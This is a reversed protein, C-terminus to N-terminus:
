LAVVEKGLRGDPGSLLRERTPQMGQDYLWRDCSALRRLPLTTYAIRLTDRVGM